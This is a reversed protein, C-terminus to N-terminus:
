IRGAKSSRVRDEKKPHVHCNKCEDGFKCGNTRLYRSCRNVRLMGDKVDDDGISDYVDQLFVPRNVAQQWECKCNAEASARYLPLASSSGAIQSRASSASSSGAM